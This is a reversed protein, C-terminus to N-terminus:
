GEEREWEAGQRKGLERWMANIVQTGSGTTLLASGDRAVHLQFFETLQKM